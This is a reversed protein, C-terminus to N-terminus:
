NYYQLIRLLNNAVSPLYQMFHLFGRVRISCAM